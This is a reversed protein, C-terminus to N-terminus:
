RLWAMYESHSSPKSTQRSAREAARHAVAECILTDTCIPLHPGHQEISATPLIALANPALRRIVERTMEALLITM